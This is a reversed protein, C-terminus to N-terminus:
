FRGPRTSFASWLGSPEGGAREGSLMGFLSPGDETDEEDEEADEPDFEDEPEPLDDDQDDLVVQTEEYYECIISKLTWQDDLFEEQSEDFLLRALKSDDARAVVDRGAAEAKILSVVRPGGKSIVLQAVAKAAGEEGRDRTLAQWCVRPDDSDVIVGFGGLLHARM